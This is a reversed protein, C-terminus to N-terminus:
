SSRDTLGYSKPRRNKPLHLTGFLYDFLPSHVSFNKDLAETDKAHHWHHHEPTSIVYRLRPFSWRINAHIFTAHVAIFGLYLYLVAPSFGLVYLPVFGVIRTALIDVIHLRSGALWDMSEVSHHVAHFPWLWKVEHFARHVWYTVFDAAVFAIVFQVVFPLAGIKDSVVGGTWREFVIAVPVITLFTLAQLLVTNRFFYGLDKWFDKRLVRQDGHLPWLRELPTFIATYFLISLLFFDLNFAFTSEVAGQIPVRSGGLLTALGVLLLGILAPLVRRRRLISWLGCMFGFVLVLHILLRWWFLDVERLVPTSFIEPFIFVLVGGFGLAGFFVSLVGSILGTGVIPTKRDM